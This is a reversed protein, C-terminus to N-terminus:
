YNNKCIEDFKLFVEDYYQAIFHMPAMNWQHFPTSIRHSPLSEISRICPYVREIYEYTQKMRENWEDVKDACAVYYADCGIRKKIRVLFNTICCLFRCPMKRVKGDVIYDSVFFVKHFVVKDPPLYELVRELFLNLRKLYLDDLIKRNIKKYCYSSLLNSRKLENSYTVFSKELSILDFREEVFDLILYDIENKIKELYSFFRKEFDDMVMRRQFSSSLNVEGRIKVLPSTQSILSSRAFYENIHYNSRQEMYSNNNDSFLDRTVCSGFILIENM